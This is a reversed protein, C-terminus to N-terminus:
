LVTKNCNKFNIKNEDPKLVSYIKFFPLVPFLTAVSAVCTFVSFTDKVNLINTKHYDGTFRKGALRRGIQYLVNETPGSFVIRGGPKLLAYLWRLTSDLDQIHELVDLAVILDYSETPLHKFQNERCNVIKICQDFPYYGSMKDLPTIDIDTATVNQSITGLFPLMVGSGTGFDLISEFPEHKEIYNITLHLRRWFLFSILPNTHAYAPFAAEDLSGIEAEALVKLLVTHMYSKYLKFEKRNM